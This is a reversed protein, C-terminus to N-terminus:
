RSTREAGTMHDTMSMLFLRCQLDLAGPVSLTTQILHDLQDGGRELVDMTDLAERVVARPSEQLTEPMLLIQVLIDGPDGNREWLAVLDGFTHVLEACWDFTSQGLGTGATDVLLELMTLLQPCAPTNCEYALTRACGVAAHKNKPRKFGKCAIRREQEAAVVALAFRQLCLLWGRGRCSRDCLALEELFRKRSLRLPSDTICDSIQFPRLTYNLDKPWGTRPCQGFNRALEPDEFMLVGEAFALSAHLKYSFPRKTHPFRHDAKVV